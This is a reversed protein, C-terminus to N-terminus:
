FSLSGGDSTFGAAVLDARSAALNREVVDRAAAELLDAHCDSVRLSTPISELRASIADVGGEQRGCSAPWETLRADTYRFDVYHFTVGSNETMHKAIVSRYAKARKGVIDVVRGPDTTWLNLSRTKMMTEARTSSGANISFIFVKPKRPGDAHLAYDELTEVGSNDLIGGDGLHWYQDNEGNCTEPMEIGAPGLLPPFGASIAVALGVSFDQPVARTCGPLSFSATQLTKETYPELASDEDSIPLNSFVFRRADDYRAANILLIPSQPLDGFNAGGTIQDDLADRLSLLRRTPSTLRSPHTFQKMTMDTLYNHRMALKFATYSESTCPQTRDAEACPTPSHLVYYAAPFGGGSVSSIHTARQMVGAEALVEMAAAGFVSARSGGGSLAVGVFESREALPACSTCPTAAEPTWSYHIRDEKFFACGGLLLASVLALGLNLQRIAM